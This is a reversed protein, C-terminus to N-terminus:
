VKLIIKDHDRKFLDYRIIVYLENKDVFNLTIHSTQDLVQSLFDDGLRVSKKESIVKVPSETDFAIYFDRVIVYEHGSQPFGFRFIPIRRKFRAQKEIKQLTSESLSYYDKDTFKDEFLYESSSADGPNSWSGGSMPVRRGNFDQAISDERKISKHRNTKAM